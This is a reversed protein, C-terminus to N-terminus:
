KCCRVYDFLFQVVSYIKLILLKNGYITIDNCSPPIYACIKFVVFRSITKAEEKESPRGKNCSFIKWKM